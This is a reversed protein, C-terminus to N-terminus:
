HALNLQHNSPEVHRLIARLSAYTGSASAIVSVFILACDITVMLTKSRGSVDDWFTALHIIAPLTISLATGSISGVLDMLLNLYPVTIALAFTFLVLLTRFLYEFNLENSRRASKSEKLSREVPSMTTSTTASTAAVTTTSTVPLEPDPFIRDKFWGWIIENPVYFQLPYTLFISTAFFGRVINSLTGQPLNLTIADGVLDGYCLYGLVGIAAYLVLLVSYSLNILGCCGGMQEPRRMRLYVPLVVSIGEFAFMASGFGLAVERLDTEVAQVRPETPMNKILLYITILIGMAQLLNACASALSLRKLTRVYSVILIFPLICIFLM